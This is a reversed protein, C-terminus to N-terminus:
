CIKSHFGYSAKAANPLNVQRKKKKKLNRLYTIFETKGSKIISPLFRM